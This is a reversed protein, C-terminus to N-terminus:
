RSKMVFDASTLGEPPVELSQSGDRFALPVIEKPMPTLENANPPIVVTSILVTYTGPPVGPHSGELSAAIYRGSADTTGRFIRQSVEGSSRQLTVAAKPLPKGDLTVVGEVPALTIGGCGVVLLSLSCAALLRVVQGFDGDGSM